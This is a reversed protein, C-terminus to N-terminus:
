CENAYEGQMLYEILKQVNEVTIKRNAISLLILLKIHECKIISDM